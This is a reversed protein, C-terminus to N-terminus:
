ILTVTIPTTTGLLTVTGPNELLRGRTLGCLGGGGTLPLLATRDSILSEVRGGAGLVVTGRAPNATTSVALCTLSGEIHVQFATGILNLRVGTITPLSGNFGGYTIHWPLTATLITAEGGICSEPSNVVARTIYGILSGSVKAMTRTHLSGEITVECTVTGEPLSFEVRRFSARIKQESIEFNRASASSVLAGLLVTAGVSALLLKCLKM